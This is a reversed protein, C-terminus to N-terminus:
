QDCEALLLQAWPLDYDDCYRRIQRDDSLGLWHAFNAQTRERRRHTRWACFAARLEQANRVKRGAGRPKVFRSAARHPPPEPPLPRPGLPGLPGYPTMSGGYRMRQDAQFQWASMRREYDALLKRYETKDDDTV